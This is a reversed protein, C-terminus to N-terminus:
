MSEIIEAVYEKLDDEPKDRIHVITTVWGSATNLGLPVSPAENHIRVRYTQGDRTRM